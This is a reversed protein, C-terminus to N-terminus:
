MKNTTSQLFIYNHPFFGPVAKEIIGLCARCLISAERQDRSYSLKRNRNGDVIARLWTGGPKGLRYGTCPRLENINGARCRGAAYKMSFHTIGKPTVMIRPKAPKGTFKEYLLGRDIYCRAPINGRVLYGDDRLRRFLVKESVRPLALIAALEGVTVDGEGASIGDLAAAKPEAVALREQQEKNEAELEKIRGRHYEIVQLTMREIDIATVANKVQLVNQLDNRGTGIQNKVATVQVENLYTTVGNRMLDPYLKRIHWKIAEDTVGLAEAVERVTMHRDNQATIENM